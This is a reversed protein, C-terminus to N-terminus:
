FEMFIQVGAVDFAIIAFMKGFPMYTGIIM